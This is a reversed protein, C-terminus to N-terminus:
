APRSRLQFRLIDDAKGIVAHGCDPFVRAEAHPLLRQLRRASAEAPLLADEKGALLQVPMTLRALEEDGLVPVPELMPRFCRGALIMFEEVDPHIEIKGWVILCTPARPPSV